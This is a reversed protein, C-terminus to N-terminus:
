DDDCAGCDNHRESAYFRWLFKGEAKDMWDNLSQGGKLGEKFHMLDVSHSPAVGQGKRHGSSRSSYFSLEMSAIFVEKGLVKTKRFFEAVYQQFAVPTEPLKEADVLVVSM